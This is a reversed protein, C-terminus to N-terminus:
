RVGRRAGGGGDDRLDEGGYEMSILLNKSYSMPKGMNGAMYRYNACHNTSVPGIKTSHARGPVM